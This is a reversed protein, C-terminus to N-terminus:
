PVQSAAQVGRLKVELEAPCRRPQAIGVYGATRDALGV